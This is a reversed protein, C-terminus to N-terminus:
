QRKSRGVPEEVRSIEKWPCFDVTEPVDNKFNVGVILWDSGPLSTNERPIDYVTGDTRYVRLPVFPKRRWLKVFEKKNM